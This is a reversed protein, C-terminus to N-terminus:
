RAFGRLVQELAVVFRQNDNANRVGLRVRVAGDTFRGSVDKIEIRHMELLQHRLTPGDVPIDRAFTVLVFGGAGSRIDDVHPLSALETVFKAMDARTLEISRDLASRFKLLMELFFEALSSNNWVPLEAGVAALLTHDRSYLYGLRLGPIGLVKSLSVLVAVNRLPKADLMSVLSPEASTGIFSEDVLFTTEPHDKAVGYLSATELLTGTPNNPNVVVLRPVRRALEALEPVSVSLRDEYHAASPWIRPYEGFTPRPIAVDQGDWLRRLIPFVQSAGNLVQVSEPDCQLYLAMKKNLVAQTSGYSPLLEPLAHRLMAILAPPPFHPNSIFSYDLIDFNWHGGFSKDLIDSRTSPEFHFRATELDNPDDVEIWSTAGIVHAAIRHRPVGVLMGLVVEYYCNDDVSNAYASLMPQLTSRVFASSFRYINLTKFTDKYSFDSGQREPPYVADVFGDRITVVTGDMGPRWRDVVAVNPETPDDLGKLVAPDLLLDCESLIIDDDMAMSDFAMALSVINNTRDFRSNHVYRTDLEPHHQEMFDRIDQARYGTVITLRQVGLSVLSTVIRGLITSDGIPLLAKHVHDSIPQMRRARGAALIVGQM